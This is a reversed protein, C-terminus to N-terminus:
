TATVLQRAASDIAATLLEPDDVGSITICLDEKLSQANAGNRKDLDDCLIRIALAHVISQAIEKRNEELRENCSILCIVFFAFALNKRM